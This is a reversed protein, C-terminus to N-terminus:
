RRRKVGGGGVGASRQGRRRRRRRAGRPGDVAGQRLRRPAPGHSLAGARGRGCHRAQARSRSTPPPPPRIAPTAPVHQGARPLRWPPAARARAACACAGPQADLLLRLTFELMQYHHKDAHEGFRALLALQVDLSEARVDARAHALGSLLRPCLAGAVLAGASAPVAAILMKLGIGYVDRLEERGDQLHKALRECIEQVQAEHARAALAALTKVCLAHVDVVTDKELRDLIAAAVRKELSADLPTDQARPRARARAAFRRCAARTPDRARARARAATAGLPRARARARRGRVKSLEQSIDHIAM